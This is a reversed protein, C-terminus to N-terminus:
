KIKAAQMAAVAASVATSQNGTVVNTFMQTFAAMMAPDVGQAQQAQQAHQAQQQSHASKQSHVESDSDHVNDINM